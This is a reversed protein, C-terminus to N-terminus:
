LKKCENMLNQLLTNRKDIDKYFSELYDIMEKKVKDALFPFDHIVKYFAEKKNVFEALAQRFEEESRCVGMYWRERVSSLGLPEYPIAYEANVLGSYDFDYPIIVGLAISNMSKGAMIKVNHQNPVSWDTNGIMYNFIALRDMLKPMISNQTLNVAEVPTINLRSAMIGVPEILFAFTEIPKRAKTTNIYDVKVMRVRFSTDTLVNFLKYILFEKFLNEENGYECHTVMKIKDISNLETNKFDGKKLNLRIPPFSCYGNRMEGRSRVKIAKSISDTRSIHYTLTAPLYETKSKKRTYQTIDFSLSLNLVNESTFLGFDTMLTDAATLPSDLTDPQSFAPFVALLILITHILVVKRM